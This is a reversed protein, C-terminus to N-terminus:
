EEKRKKVKTENKVSKLTTKRKAIKKKETKEKSHKLRNETKERKLLSNLVTIGNFKTNL